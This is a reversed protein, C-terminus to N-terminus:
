SAVHRFTLPKGGGFTEMYLILATENHQIAFLGTLTIWEGWSAKKRSRDLNM